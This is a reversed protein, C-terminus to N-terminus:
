VIHVALVGLWVSILLLLEKADQTNKATQIM